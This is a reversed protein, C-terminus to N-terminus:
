CFIEMLDFRTAERRNKYAASRATHHVRDPESGVVEEMGHFRELWSLSPGMNKVSVMSTAEGRQESLLCKTDAQETLQLNAFSKVQPLIM